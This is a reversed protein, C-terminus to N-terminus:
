SEQTTRVALLFDKGAPTVGVGAGALAAEPERGGAERKAPGQHNCQGWRCFGPRKMLFVSSVGPLWCGCTRLMLMEAAEAFGLVELFASM